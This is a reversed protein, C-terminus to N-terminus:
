EAGRECEEHRQGNKIAPLVAAAIKVLELDLAAVAAAPSHDLLQETEGPM